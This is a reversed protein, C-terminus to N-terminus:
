YFYKLIDRFNDSDVVHTSVRKLESAANFAISLGVAKAFPVDNRGDGVFACDKETLGHEKMILRMFDLKGEYDCPLLNWHVLKGSDDWLYECAAFAHHIKLDRLARDAQAKFGGSVLATRIGRRHIERFSSKVGRHYKISAMINDFFDKTLDHKKHIKITDEMWEVYGEYQDNNWKDKTADEEILAQKGLHEAVLTWASPATNGKSDKYLKKFITGEM